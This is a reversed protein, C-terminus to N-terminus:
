GRGAALMGAMLKEAVLEPAVRYNGLAIRQQLDALKARMAADDGPPM